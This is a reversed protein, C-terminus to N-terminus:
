NKEKKKKTKVKEIHKIKDQTIEELAITVPNKSDTEVLKKEGSFLRSARQAVIRVLGYRSGIKKVLEEVSIEAMKYYNERRSM